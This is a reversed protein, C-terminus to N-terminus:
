HSNAQTDAQLTGICPRAPRSSPPAPIVVTVPLAVSSSSPRYKPSPGRQCSPRSYKPSRSWASPRRGRRRPRSSRRMHRVEGRPEPQSGSPRMSTTDMRSRFTMRESGSPRTSCASRDPIAEVVAVVHDDVRCPAYPFKPNSRCLHEDVLLPDLPTGASGPAASLWAPGHRDRHCRACAPPAQCSTGSRGTMVGSPEVSITASVSEAQPQGRRVDRLVPAQGFQRIHRGRRGGGGSPIQRSASPWTQTALEMM